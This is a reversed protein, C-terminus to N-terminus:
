CCRQSWAVATPLLSRCCHLFCKWPLVVGISLRYLLCFWWFFVFVSFFGWFFFFFLSGAVILGGVKRQFRQKKQKKTKKPKKPKWNHLKIHLSNQEQPKGTPSAINFHCTCGYKKRSPYIWPSFHCFSVAWFTPAWLAAKLEWSQHPLVSRSFHRFIELYLDTTPDTTLKRGLKLDRWKSFGCGTEAAALPKWNPPRPAGEAAGNRSTSPTAGPRGQRM